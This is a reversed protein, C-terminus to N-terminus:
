RNLLAEAGPKIRLAWTSARTGPDAFSNMAIVRGNSVVPGGSIGVVPKYSLEVNPASNVKVDLAQMNVLAQRVIRGSFRVLTLKPVAAIAIDDGNRVLM